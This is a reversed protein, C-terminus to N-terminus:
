DEGFATSFLLDQTKQKAKNQKSTKKEISVESMKVNTLWGEKGDLKEIFVKDRLLVAIIGSFLM